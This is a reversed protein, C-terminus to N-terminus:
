NQLIVEKTVVRASSLIFTASSAVIQEDTMTNRIAKVVAPMDRIIGDEVAGDPTTVQVASHVTVTKGKLQQAECIKIFDNGIEITLVKAAM